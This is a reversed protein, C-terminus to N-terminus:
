EMEVTVSHQAIEQAKAARKQMARKDLWNAASAFGFLVVTVFGGVIAVTLLLIAGLIGCLFGM